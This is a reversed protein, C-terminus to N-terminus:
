LYPIKNSKLYTDYTIEEGNPMRFVQEPYPNLFLALSHRLADIEPVQHIGMKCAIGLKILEYILCDGCNVFARKGPMHPASYWIGDRLVKLGKEDSVVLTLLGYDSHAPIGTEGEKKPFYKRTTLVSKKDDLYSILRDPDIKYCFAIYRYLTHLIALGQDYYDVYAKLSLDGPTKLDLYPKCHFAIQNRILGTGLKKAKDKTEKRVDQFGNFDKNPVAKLIAKPLNLIEKCLVLADEAAKQLNEIAKGVLEFTGVNELAYRMEDVDFHDLNIQPIIPPRNIESIIKNTWPTEQGFYKELLLQNAKNIAISKKTIKYLEKPPNRHLFELMSLGRQYVDKQASNHMCLEKLMGYCISSVLRDISFHDLYKGEYLIFDSTELRYFSDNTIQTFYNDYFAAMLNNKNEDYEVIFQIKDSQYAYKAEELSPYIKDSFKALVEIQIKKKENLSVSLRRKLEFCFETLFLQPTSINETCTIILYKVM